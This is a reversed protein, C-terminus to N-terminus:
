RNLRDHSIFATTLDAVTNELLAFYQTKKDDELFEESYHDYEWLLLHVLEHVIIAEDKGTEEDLLLITAKKSHVDVKIDGSQPYNDPRQFKTFELNMNWPQLNLQRQWYLLYKNCTETRNNM